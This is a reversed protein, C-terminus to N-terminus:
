NMGEFTGQLVGINKKNYERVMIQLTQSGSSVNLKTLKKFLEWEKADIDFSIKKKAAM